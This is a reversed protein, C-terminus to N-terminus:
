AEVDPTVERAPTGSEGPRAAGALLVANTGAPAPTTDDRPPLLPMAIAHTPCAEVCARCKVCENIATPSAALDRLDIGEPCAKACRGCRAGERAGERTELCVARDITPVFTRNARAVLSMLAGLPCFRHCWRRAVLLEAVLLALVVVLAWSASGMFLRLVLYIAAFTLGIPCVLCFVPFGFVVASLLSGGLVWHRTDLARGRMQACSACGSSSGCGGAGGGCSGATGKKRSGERDGDRLGLLRQVLPVSCVWSCFARGFLVILAVAVLLSILVRPVLTKSALLTALAGVPCIASISEWGFASINGLPVMAVFAVSCVLLVLAPLARRLRTLNAGRRRGGSAGPKYSAVAKARRIPAAGCSAAREVRAQPKYSRVPRSRVNRADTEGEAEGQLEHEAKASLNTDDECIVPMVGDGTKRAQPKYSARKAM